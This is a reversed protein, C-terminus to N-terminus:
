PDKQAGLGLDPGSPSETGSSRAAARVCPDFAKYYPAEIFLILYVFYTYHIQMHVYIYIYTYMNTNINM